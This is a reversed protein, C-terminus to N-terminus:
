SDKKAQDKLKQLEKMIDDPSTEKKSRKARDAESMNFEKLIALAMSNTTYGGAKARSIASNKAAQGSRRNMESQKLESLTDKKVQELIKSRVDIKQKRAEDLLRNEIKLDDVSLGGASIRRQIDAEAKNLKQMEPDNTAKEQAKRNIETQTKTSNLDKTVNGSIEKDKEKDSLSNFNKYALNNEIKDREKKAVNAEATNLTRKSGKGYEKGIISSVGKANRIDFTRNGVWDGTRVSKNAINRLGTYRAFKSDSSALSRTAKNDLALRAGGGIVKRGAFASGALAAGGIFGNVKGAYGGAKSSAMKTVILTGILFGIVISFSIVSTITTELGEESISFFSSWSITKSVKEIIVLSVGLCFLFVPAVLAQGFLAELWKDFISKRLQPLTISGFAISSSIILVILFLLRTIFFIVGILLVLILILNLFTGVLSIKTVQNHLYTTQLSINSSETGTAALISAPNVTDIIRKSFALEEQTEGGSIGSYISVAATNTIDIFIKTFFMSFNILIAVLLVSGIIKKIDSDIGGIIIKISAYLLVFILSIYTIDRFIKWIVLYSDTQSFYNKKIEFVTNIIIFDFVQGILGLLYASPQYLLKYSFEAVYCSLSAGMSGEPSVASGLLGGTGQAVGFSLAQPLDYSCNFSLERAAQAGVISPMLVSFSIAFLMVIGFIKKNLQNFKIMRM